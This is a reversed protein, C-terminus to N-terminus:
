SIGAWGEQQGRTTPLSSSPENSLLCKYKRSQVDTKQRRTFCVQTEMHVAVPLGLHCLVLAEDIFNAIDFLGQAMVFQLMHVHVINECVSDM